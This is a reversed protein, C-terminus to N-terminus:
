GAMAREVGEWDGEQLKTLKRRVMWVRWFVWLVWVTRAVLAEMQLQSVKGEDEHLYGDLVSHLYEMQMLAKGSAPVHM